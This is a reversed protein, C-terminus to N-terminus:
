AALRESQAIRRVIPASVCRCLITEEASGNPDRPYMLEDDGVQFAEDVAIPNQMYRLMALRHSPRTRLDLTALWGKLMEYGAVKMNNAQEQMKMDSAMSFIRLIETRYIREARYAVEKFAGTSDLVSGIEEIAQAANMRTLVARHLVGNIRDRVQNTLGKIRDATFGTLTQVIEKTLSYSASLGLTKMPEAILKEGLDFAQGLSDSIARAAENEFARIHIEIAHQAQMLRSLTLENGVSAKVELAVQKQLARLERLVEAITRDDLSHIERIIQDVNRQFEPTM